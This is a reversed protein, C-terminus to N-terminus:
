FLKVKHFGKYWPGGTKYILERYTNARMIHQIVKVEMFVNVGHYVMKKCTIPIM